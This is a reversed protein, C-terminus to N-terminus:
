NVPIPFSVDCASGGPDKSGPVPTWGTTNAPVVGTTRIQDVLEDVGSQAAAVAADYDQERRSGSISNLAYEALLSAVLIIVTGYGIVALMAFGRDPADAGRRLARHFSSRIWQLM